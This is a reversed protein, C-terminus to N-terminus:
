HLFALFEQDNSFVKYKSELAGVKFHRLTNCTLTQHKSERREGIHSQTMSHKAWLVLLTSNDNRIQLKSDLLEHIGM